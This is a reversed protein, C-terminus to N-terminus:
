DLDNLIEEKTLTFTNTNNNKNTKKNNTNNNNIYNNTDKKEVFDKIHLISENDFIMFYMFLLPLFHFITKDLAYDIKDMKNLQNKNKINENDNGNNDNGNNDNGNNENLAIQNFVFVLKNIQISLDQLSLEFDMLQEYEIKGDNLYNHIYDGIYKYKKNIRNMRDDIKEVYEIVEM